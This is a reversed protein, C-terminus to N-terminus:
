AQAQSMSGLVVQDNTEASLRDNRQSDRNFTFPVHTEHDEITLGPTESHATTSRNKPLEPPSSSPLAM